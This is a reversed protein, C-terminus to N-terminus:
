GSKCLILVEKDDRESNSNGTSNFQRYRHSMTQCDVRSKGFSGVCIELLESLSVMRANGDSGSSSASYSIIASAGQAAIKGLLSAFAKPAKSRASFASKYRNEPYLGTTIPTNVPLKPVGDGALTELFHYFRSYQQATYPPDLYYLQQAGIDSVINEAPGRLSRHEDQSYFPTASVSQCGELFRVIIDERRDSLLRGDLFRTNGSTTKFPQAFHKGASHVAVSAAHMLATKSAARQWLSLQQKTELNACFTHLMDLSLTQRIGFYNGAYVSTMPPTDSATDPQKWALPLGEYLSRLASINQSALAEDEHAMASAWKAYKPNAMQREFYENLGELVLSEGVERYVGLLAIGFVEAYAQTDIATVKYGDSALAQAVVTSGTFLDVVHANPAVLEAVAARIESLVRVKSGLYQVPRYPAYDAKAVESILPASVMNNVHESEDLRSYTM